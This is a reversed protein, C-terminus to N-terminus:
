VNDDVETPEENASLVSSFYYQKQVAHQVTTCQVPISASEVCGSKVYRHQEHFM